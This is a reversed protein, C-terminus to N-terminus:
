LLGGAAGLRHARALSTVVRDGMLDGKINLPVFLVTGERRSLVNSVVLARMMWIASRVSACEVGLWGAYRHSSAALGTEQQVRGAIGRALALSAEFADDGSFTPEVAPSEEDMTKFLGAIARQQARPMHGLWYHCTKAIVTVVNKIEKELQFSPAAPLDLM